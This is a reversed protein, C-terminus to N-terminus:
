KDDLWSYDGDYIMNVNFNLEGVSDYHAIERRQEKRYLKLYTATLDRTLCYKTMFIHTSMEGAIVKYGDMRRKTEYEMIRDLSMKINLKERQLM